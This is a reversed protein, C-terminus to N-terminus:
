SAFHRIRIYFHLLTCRSIKKIELILNLYILISLFICLFTLLAWLFSFLKQKKKKNIM